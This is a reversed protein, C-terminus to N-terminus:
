FLSVSSHVILIKITCLGSYLNRVMDPNRVMLTSLYELRKSTGEPDPTQADGLLIVGTKWM